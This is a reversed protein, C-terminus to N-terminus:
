LLGAYTGADPNSNLLDNYGKAPDSTEAASRYTFTGQQYTEVSIGVGKIESILDKLDQVTIGADNLDQLWVWVDFHAYKGGSFDETVKVRSTPKGLITAVVQKVNNITASSTYRQMQTKLRARYHADSEGTLRKCNFLKGLNDLNKGTAYDVHHANLINQLEAEIQDLEQAPISLLKYNNSGQERRYASSLRKVLRDIVSM